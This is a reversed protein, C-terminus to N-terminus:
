TTSSTLFSSPTSQEIRPPSAIICFLKFLTASMSATLSPANTGVQLSLMRLVYENELVPCKEFGLEDLNLREPNTMREENSRMVVPVGPLLPSTTVTVRDHPFEPPLKYVARTAGGGAQTGPTRAPAVLVSLPKERLGFMPVEHSPAFGNEPSLPRPGPRPASVGASAAVM